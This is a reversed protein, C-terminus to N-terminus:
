LAMARGSNYYLWGELDKPTIRHHQIAAALRCQLEVRPDELNCIWVRGREDVEEGLLPRDLAVALGVSM